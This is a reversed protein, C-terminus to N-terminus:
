RQVPVPSGQPFTLFELVAVLRPAGVRELAVRIVQHTCDTCLLNQLHGPSAALCSWAEQATDAVVLDQRHIARPWYRGEALAPVGPCDPSGHTLLGLRALCDAHDQVVADFTPFDTLSPLGSQARRQDVQASLYRRAAELDPLPAPGPLPALAPPSGGVFVSFLLEVQDGDVVEMRHEGPQSWGSLFIPRSPDITREEVPGDPHAIFLRPRPKLRSEPPTWGQLQLLAGEGPELDRPLPELRLVRRAWGRLWWVQGDSFVRHVEVVDRDLTTPEGVSLETPPTLGGVRVRFRADGPYGARSLALRVADPTLRAQPSTAAFLLEEAAQNLRADTCVQASGVPACAVPAHGVMPRAPPVPPELETRHCALGVAWLIAFVM